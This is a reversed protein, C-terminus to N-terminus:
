FIQWAAPPPQIGGGGAGIISSGVWGLSDIGGLSDMFAFMESPALVQSDKRPQVVGLLEEPVVALNVGLGLYYGVESEDVIGDLSTSGRQNYAYCGSEQPYSFDNQWTPLVGLYGPCRFTQNSQILPVYPKLYVPWEYGLVVGSQSYDAYPYYGTDGVYMRMGLGIQRLNSKCYTLNAEKKAEGLATMLLSALIAIIAIVVLIETLTFGLPSDTCAAPLTLNKRSSPENLVWKQFSHKIDRMNVCITGNRRISTQASHFCYFVLPILLCARIPLKILTKLLTSAFNGPSMAM